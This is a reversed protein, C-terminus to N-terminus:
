ETATSEKAAASATPRLGNALGLVEHMAYTHRELVKVFPFGGFKGKSAVCQAGLAV